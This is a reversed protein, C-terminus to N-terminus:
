RANRAIRNRHNPRTSGRVFGRAGFPSRLSSPRSSAIVGPSSALVPMYRASLSSMSMSIIARNTAAVAECWIVGNMISPTIVANRIRLRVESVHASGNERPM